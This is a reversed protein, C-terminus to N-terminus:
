ALPHHKVDEFTEVVNLDIQIAREAPRMAYEGKQEQVLAWSFSDLSPWRSAVKLNCDRCREAWESFPKTTYTSWLQGFSLCFIPGHSEVLPGIGYVAIKAHALEHLLKRVPTNRPKSSLVIDHNWPCYFHGSDDYKLSPREVPLEVEESWVHKVISSSAEEDMREDRVGGCLYEECEYIAEKHPDNRVIM